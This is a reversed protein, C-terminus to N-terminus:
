NKSTVDQFHQDCVPVRRHTRVKIHRTARQGCPEGSASYIECTLPQKYREILAELDVKFQEADDADLTLHESIELLTMAIHIQQKDSM